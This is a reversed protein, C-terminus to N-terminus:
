INAMSESLWKPTISKYYINLMRKLEDIIDGRRIRIRLEETKDKDIELYKSLIYVTDYVDESSVDSYVNNDEKKILENNLEKSFNYFRNFTIYEANEEKEVISLIANGIVLEPAIKM